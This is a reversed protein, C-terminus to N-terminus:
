SVLNWPVLNWLGWSLGPMALIFLYINLSLANGQAIEEIQLQPFQPLMTLPLSPALLACRKTRNGGNQPEASPAHVGPLFM